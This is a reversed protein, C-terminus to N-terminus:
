GHRLGVAQIVTQLREMASVYRRFYIQSIRRHMACAVQLNDDLIQRLLKGEIKLVESAEAAEANVLYRETGMLSSVGFVSGPMLDDVLFSGGKAPKRLEVRGKVLVFLHSAPVGESYIREGEELKVVSSADSLRRMETPSLLGFLEHKGLREVPM